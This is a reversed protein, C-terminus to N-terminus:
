SLSMFPFFIVSVLLFALHFLYIFRMVSSPSSIIALLPERVIGKGYCFSAVSIFGDSLGVVVFYLVSAGPNIFLSLSIFGGQEQSFSICM